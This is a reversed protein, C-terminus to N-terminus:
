DLNQLMSWRSSSSVTAVAADGPPPAAVATARLGDVWLGEARLVVPSHGGDNRQGIVRSTFPCYISSIWVNCVQHEEIRSRERCVENEVKFSGQRTSHAGLSRYLHVLPDPLSSSLPIEKKEKKKERREKKGSCRSAFSWAFSHATGYCNLSTIEEKDM